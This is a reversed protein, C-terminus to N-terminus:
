LEQRELVVWAGVLAGLILGSSVWLAPWSTGGDELVVSAWVTLQGPLYEGLGPLAGTASLFMWAGFALGGGVVQSSSLTSCFLTLAVFVLTFLLTLGNVVLWGGLDPAEFLLLTYYYCAAGALVFSLTFTIALAVFKATVFVRRPLPKVLMLAATGKTKEQAVTGMAMFLALLVGLQSINKLYQEVAMAATPPPILTAIEDGNPMTLKVIEPTYKALLPSTLGFLLWVVAVILLRYSRWQELLEKRLAVWFIM